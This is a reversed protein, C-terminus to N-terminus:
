AFGLNFAPLLSPAARVRFGLLEPMREVVGGLCCHPM